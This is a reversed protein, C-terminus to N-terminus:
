STQSTVPKYTDECRFTPQNREQTVTFSLDAKLQDTQSANNVPGGNCTITGDTAITMDGMCWATGVYYTTAGTLAKTPNGQGEFFSQLSDALTLHLKGDTSAALLTSLKSGSAFFRHDYEAGVDMVGDHDLDPWWAFTLNQAMEGAGTPTCNSDDKLEPETCSVDVDSKVDITACAWAPNNDIHLSIVDTGKDGPKVDAFDFFKENVINLGLDQGWTGATFPQGNYTANSDVKLDIAGATFTNGSSTETDSFFAGTAGWVLAGVLALVGVSGIIKKM